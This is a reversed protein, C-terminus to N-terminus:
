NMNVGADIIISTRDKELVHVQFYPRELRDKKWEGLLKVVSGEVVTKLDTDSAKCQIVEHVTIIKFFSSKWKVNDNKSISLVRGEIPTM